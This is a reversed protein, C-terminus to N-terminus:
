RGRQRARAFAVKGSYDDIVAVAVDGSAEPLSLEFTYALARPDTRHAVIAKQRPTLSRGNEERLLVYVTFRAEEGGAPSAITALRDFPVVVRLRRPEAAGAVTRFDLALALPNDVREADFLEALQMAIREDRSQLRYSQRYRLELGPRDVEVRIKRLGPRGGSTPTFALSYYGGLDSVLRDVEDEIGRGGRALLGGTEHALLAITDVPNQEAMQRAAVPLAGLESEPLFQEASEGAQLAYVTVGMTNIRSTVDSWLSAMVYENMELRAKFPDFRDRTADGQPDGDFLVSFAGPVGQALAEGSCMDIAYQYAEGGAILPIGDSVHLLIKRGDQHSLRSAYRLLASASFEVNRRVLDAYGRLIPGTNPCGGDYKSAGSGKIDQELLRLWSRLELGATLRSASFSGLDTLARALKKRDDTPSLVVDLNAGDFRVIGVTDEPALRESLSQYLARLLPVRSHEGIQLEDFFLALHRPAPPAAGADADSRRFGAGPENEPVWAFHSVEVPRGDEYITFAERPLAVVRQGDQDVVRVEVNVLEVSIEDAVPDRLEPTASQAAAVSGVAALAAWAWATRRTPPKRRSTM